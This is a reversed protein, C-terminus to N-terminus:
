HLAGLGAGRGAYERGRDDLELRNGVDQHRHRHDTGASLTLSVNGQNGSSEHCWLLVLLRSSPIVEVSQRQETGIWPVGDDMDSADGNMRQSKRAVPVTGSNEDTVYSGRMREALEEAWSGTRGAVDVDVDAGGGDM